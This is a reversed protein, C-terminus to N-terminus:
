HRLRSPPAMQLLAEVAPVVTHPPYPKPLTPYERYQEPISPIGNASAFLFPVGRGHLQAALPYVAEGHLNIDLIAADIHEHEAIEMADEVRDAHLVRYGADSLMDELMRALYLEDEVMLICTDNMAYLSNM